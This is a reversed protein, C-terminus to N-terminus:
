NGFVRKNREDWIFYVSAALVIRGLIGRISNNCAMVTMKNLVEDRENAVEKIKIMKKIDIWIEDFYSCKFFLHDHSDRCKECMPCIVTKRPYWKALRDQTSLRKLVTLWIIFSHKPTCHSFWIVKYWTVREDNHMRAKWMKNVLFKVKNGKMNEWVVKDNCDALNPVPISNLWPYSIIWMEPWKWERNISASVSAVLQLITSKGLNPLLGSISSFSDLTRKIVKVFKLDGHCLVFLDDAFCVHPIELKKFRLHYEFGSDENIQKELFELKDVVYNAFTFDKKKKSLIKPLVLVVLCHDSSLHPLFHAISNCFTGIFSNNGMVRDIKKLVGQKSKANRDGMLVWPNDNVIRKYENLNKWIKEKESSKLKSMSGDKTAKADVKKNIVRSVPRLEFRTQYSNKGFGKVNKNLHEGKMGKGGKVNYKNQRIGVFGGKMHGNARNGQAKIYTLDYIM